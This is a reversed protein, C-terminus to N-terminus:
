DHGRDPVKNSLMEEYLDARGPLDAVPRHGRLVPLDRPRRMEAAERQFSGEARRESILEEALSVEAPIHAFRSRVRELIEERSVPFDTLREEASRKTTRSIGQM